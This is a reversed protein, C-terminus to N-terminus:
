RPLRLTALTGGGPADDVSVAGGHLRAVERVFSLGLGTSRAGGGPRPLSYFREFIRARAYAPVGPGHDRIQVTAAGDAGATVELASGAPSFDIANDLLNGIAQDLLYADGSVPVPDAARVDVRVEGGELRPRRSEVVDRVLAALDLPRPEALDNRKEVGALLLMRDVTRQLREGELEIHDLFRGRTAPEPDDRLVEVAGRIAALPSKLEHTLAHVTDEVYDKNELEERMRAMASGLMALEPETVRPMTAPRGASVAEAYRTLRRVNRTIWGALLAGLAAGAVVLAVAVIAIRRESARLYPLLTEAAKGVSVVGVIDDRRVIPAAVYYTSSLEDGPDQRTARAGYEGRLTLYVDNWRSYDEGVATGASDYLVIGRADTVYVHLGPETKTVDYIRAALVRRAYRNLANVLPEDGDEFGDALAGDVDSAAVVEALLNATDVLTEETARSFAPKLEEFVASLLAYAVLSLLLFFGILIRAGIRM